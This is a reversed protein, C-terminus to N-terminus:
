RVGLCDRLRILADRLRAKVTGLPVALLLSLERHTYGRYFALTVADRQLETLADLCRRVAQHEMRVEVADAVQDYDPVTDRVGVTSERVAAAQASRVHDVARRRAMTVLWARASGRAPDFRPATRWVELLVEQTVDQARIPDRVVALAVGHVIPAVLDYLTEFAAHDGDAVRLLLTDADQDPDPGAAAGASGLGTAVRREGPPSAM